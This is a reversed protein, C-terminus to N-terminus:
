IPRQRADETMDLTAFYVNAPGEGHNLFVGAMFVNTEMVDWYSFDYAGLEPALPIVAGNYLISLTSRSVRLDIEFFGKPRRFLPFTVTTAKSPSKRVTAWIYDKLGNKARRWSIRLLPSKRYTKFDSVQIQLFTIERTPYPPKDVRVRASLRRELNSKGTWESNHRLACRNGQGSMSFMMSTNNVLQFPEVAYDAFHGHSVKTSTGVPWQLRSTSLVHRFKSKSFPAVLAEITLLPWQSADAFESSRFTTIFHPKAAVIAFAVSNKEKKTQSRLYSTVDWEMTKMGPKYVIDGLTKNVDYYPTNFWSVPSVSGSHYTAAPCLRVVAGHQGDKVSLKLTARSASTFGLDKLDFQLFGRRILKLNTQDPLKEKVILDRERSFDDKQLGRVYTDHIPHFTNKGALVEDVRSLFLSLVVVIVKM